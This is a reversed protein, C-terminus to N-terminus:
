KAYRVKKAKPAPAAKRYRVPQKKYEVEKRYTPKREVVVEETVYERVVRRQPVAVLVPVLMVPRAVYTQAYGYQYGYAGYAHQYNAYPYAHGQPAAYAYGHDGEAYYGGDYDAGAQEYGGYHRDYVSDCYRRIEREDTSSDIASGIALGGLAGIGGGILTGALRDGDAVRNGVFGGALAGLVGGIAKGDDAGDYDGARVEAYCRGVWEDRDYAMPAAYGLYSAHERYAAADAESWRPDASNEWYPTEYEGGDPQMPADRYIVQDAGEVPVAYEYADDEYGMEPQALAPAAAALAVMAACASTISRYKM